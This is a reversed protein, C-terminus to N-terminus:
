LALQNSDQLMKDLMSQCDKVLKEAHETAEKIIRQRNSPSKYQDATVANYTGRDTERVQQQMNTLDHLNAELQEQIKNLSIEMSKLSNIITSSTRVFMGWATENEKVKESKWTSVDDQFSNLEEIFIHLNEAVKGVSEKLGTSKLSKIEDKLEKIADERKRTKQRTERISNEEQLEKLRELAKVIASGYSKVDMIVLLTAKELKIYDHSINKVKEKLYEKKEPIFKVVEQTNKRLKKLQERIIKNRSKGICGFCDEQECAHRKSCNHNCNNLDTWPKDKNLSDVVTGNATVICSTGRTRPLNTAPFEENDKDNHYKVTLYLQDAISSTHNPSNYTSSELTGLKSFGVEPMQGEFQIKSEYHSGLAGDVKLKLYDGAEATM